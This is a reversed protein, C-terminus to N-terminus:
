DASFNQNDVDDWEKSVQELLSIIESLKKRNHIFLTLEGIEIAARKRQNVKQLGVMVETDRRIHARVLNM